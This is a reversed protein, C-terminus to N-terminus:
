KSDLEPGLYQHIFLTSILTIDLVPKFNLCGNTTCSPHLLGMWKECLFQTKVEFEYKGIRIDKCGSLGNINWFEIKQDWMIWLIISGRNKTACIEPSYFWPNHCLSLDKIMSDLKQQSQSITNYVWWTYLNYVTGWNMWGLGLRIM